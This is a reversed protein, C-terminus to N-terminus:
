LLQSETIAFWASSREGKSSSPWPWPSSTNAKRGDKAALSVAWKLKDIKLLVVLCVRSIPGPTPLEEIHADYREHSTQRIGDLIMSALVLRAVTM